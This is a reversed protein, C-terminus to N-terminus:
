LQGDAPQSGPPAKPSHSAPVVFESYIDEPPHEVNSGTALVWGDNGKAEMTYHGSPTTVGMVTTAGGQTISASYQASLGELRAIVSRNGDGHQQIQEVVLTHQELAQPIEIDLRDGPILTGIRRQNLKLFHRGDAAAEAPLDLGAPPQDVPQWADRQDALRAYERLSVDSDPYFERMRQHNRVIDPRVTPESAAAPPASQAPLASTAQRDGPWKPDQADTTPNVERPPTGAQPSEAIPGTRQLYLAATMALVVGCGLAIPLLKM